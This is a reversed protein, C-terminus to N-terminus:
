FILVLSVTVLVAVRPACVMPDSLSHVHGHAWDVVGSVHSPCLMVKQLFLNLLSAAAGCSTPPVGAEQYIASM